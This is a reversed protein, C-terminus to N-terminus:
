RLQRLSFTDHHVDHTRAQAQALKHPVAVVPHPAVQLRPRQRRGFPCFVHTLGSCTSLKHASGEQCGHPQSNRAVHLDRPGRRLVEAGSGACVNLLKADRLVYGVRRRTKCDARIGGSVFGNVRQSLVDSNALLAAPSSRSRRSHASNTASQLVWASFFTSAARAQLRVRRQCPACHRRGGLSGKISLRKAEAFSRFHSVASAPM